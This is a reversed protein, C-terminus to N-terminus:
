NKNMEATELSRHYMYRKQPDIIGILSTHGHKSVGLNAEDSSHTEVETRLAAGRATLYHVEQNSSGVLPHISPSERLYPGDILVDIRGLLGITAEDMRQLKAFRFGSYAFISWEPRYALVKDILASLADAQAFPEGGTLTIGDLPMEVDLIRTTVREVPVTKGSDAELLEPTICGPCRLPCGAVWLAIRRGPGLTSVPYALSDFMLNM